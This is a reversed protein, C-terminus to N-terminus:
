RSSSPAVRKLIEQWQKLHERVYQPTRRNMERYRGAPFFAGNVVTQGERNWFSKMPLGDEDPRYVRDEDQELLFRRPQDHCGSCTTTGRRVTHPFFAKWEAALPRNEWRRSPDTAFLVFEPRIPSVLGRADLGLPPADQRRLYASKKWDGWSPLPRFAETQRLTAPRVLFTGYEQSAWASHCAWCEMKELHATIAHEPVDPSVRPHCDRCTRVATRDGHARHVAHCASCGMGAQQHVDPVMKLYPEGNAVPGRRYREHDERAARGHYDWGTWYDKHCALCAEDSPKAAFAAGAGHCDSCRRVHCGGCSRDFFADGDRGMARRAFAREPARTAMVGQLVGRQPAHCRVCATDALAAHDPVPAAVAPAPAEAVLLWCAAICPITWRM